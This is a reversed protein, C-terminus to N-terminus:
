GFVAGLFEIIARVAMEATLGGPDRVPSVEVM